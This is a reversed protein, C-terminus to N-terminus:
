FWINNLASPAVPWFSRFPASNIQILRTRQVRSGRPKSSVSLGDPNLPYRTLHPISVNSKTGCMM